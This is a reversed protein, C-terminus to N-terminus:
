EVNGIELKQKRSRLLSFWQSCSESSQPDSVGQCRFIDKLAKMVIRALVIKHCIDKSGGVKRNSISGLFCFSDMIRTDENDTGLSSAKSHTKM